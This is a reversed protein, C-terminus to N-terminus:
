REVDSQFQTQFKIQFFLNAIHIDRLFLCERCSLSATTDTLVSVSLEKGWWASFITKQLRFCAQWYLHWLPCPILWCKAGIHVLKIPKKVAQMDSEHQNKLSKVGYIIQKTCSPHFFMMQCALISLRQIATTRRCSM